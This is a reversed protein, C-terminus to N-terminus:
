SGTLLKAYDLPKPIEPLNEPLVPLNPDTARAFDNLTKAGDNFDPFKGDKQPANLYQIAADVALSINSMAGLSEAKAKFLFEKSKTFDGEMYSARALYYYAENKWGMFAGETQPRSQEELMRNAADKMLKSDGTATALSLQYASYGPQGSEKELVKEYKHVTQLASDKEGATATESNLIGLAKNVLQSAAGSHGPELELIRKLIKDSEPHGYQADLSPTFMDTSPFFSAHSPLGMPFVLQELTAPDQIKSIPTNKMALLLLGYKYEGLAMECGFDGGPQLGEPLGATIPEKKKECAKIVKEKQESILSNRFDCKGPQLTSVQEKSLSFVTAAYKQCELSFNKKMDAEIEPTIKVSPLSPFPLGGAPANVQSLPDLQPIPVQGQRAPAKPLGAQIPALASFSTSIESHQNSISAPNRSKGFYGIAIGISLIWLTFLHKQM